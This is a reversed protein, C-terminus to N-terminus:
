NVRFQFIGSDSTNGQSDHTVIKWYYVTGSTVSIDNLSMETVNSKLVPPNANNGFYVDYGTIDSDPDAGTWKINIKGGTASVDAGFVPSTIAAPFPPYSTSGPGANYFKWTDSQTTDKSKGSISKVSWSYPTNRKLTVKLQNTNIVQTVVDQTLLNKINVQYNDTNTSTNWSFVISSQTDSIVTGSTCAANQEPFILTAKGPAPAKDKKGCSTTLIILFLFLGKKM